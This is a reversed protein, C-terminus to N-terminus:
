TLPAPAADTFGVVTKIRGDPALEVFDTGALYLPAEPVGGAAWSFRVFDSHTEIDSVLNVRYGPFQDQTKGVLTDIADHGAAQRHADVYGGDETWTNAVLDRRRAPDRENWTALYSIVTENVNRM